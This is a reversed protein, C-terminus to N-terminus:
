GRGLLSPFWMAKSHSRVSGIAPATYAPNPGARFFHEVAKWENAIM